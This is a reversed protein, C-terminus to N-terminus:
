IQWKNFVRKLGCRDKNQIKEFYPLLKEVFDVESMGNFICAADGLQSSAGRVNAAVM